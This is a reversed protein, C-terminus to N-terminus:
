RDGPLGARRRIMGDLARDTAIRKLFAQLRADGGVVYRTKPRKATLAHEVARAVRKAPIARAALRSMAARMATAADGYLARAEAPLAGELAEAASDTKIWIRTAVIGPEIISVEIGWPHLEQRLTDTLGEMAFKSANYPGAFPLAVRGIISGINVVRGRAERLAGLFAQTVAIQGIVNVEFQRRLDGLDVFELPGPAVIGANNVLGALGRAGTARSVDEAARRITAGDTVDLLITSLRASAQSRLRDADEERRVGAFVSWGAADLHLACAEGIGSSAGTIVVTGRIRSDTLTAPPIPM